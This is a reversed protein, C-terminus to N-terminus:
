SLNGLLFAYTFKKKAKLRRRETRPLQDQLSREMENQRHCMRFRPRVRHIKRGDKNRCNSQHKWNRRKMYEFWETRRTVRVNWTFKSGGSQKRRSMPELLVHLFIIWSTEGLFSLPFHALSVILVNYLQKKKKSIWCLFMGWVFYSM